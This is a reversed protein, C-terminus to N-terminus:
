LINHLKTTMKNFQIQADLDSLHSKLGEVVLYSLSEAKLKIDNIFFNVQNQDQIVLPIDETNNLMFDAQDIEREVELLKFDIFGDLKM